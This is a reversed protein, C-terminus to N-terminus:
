HKTSFDNEVFNEILLRLVRLRRFSLTRNQPAHRGLLACRRSDPSDFVYEADLTEAKDFKLIRVERVHKSRTSHLFYVVFVPM